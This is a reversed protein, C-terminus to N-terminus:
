NSDTKKGFNEYFITFFTRSKVANIVCHIIFYGVCTCVCVHSNVFNCFLDLDFNLNSIRPKRSQVYRRFQRSRCVNTSRSAYTSVFMTGPVVDFRAIRVDPSVM